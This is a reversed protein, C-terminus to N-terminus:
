PDHCLEIPQTNPEHDFSELNFDKDHQACVCPSHAGWM